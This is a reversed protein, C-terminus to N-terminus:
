TNAARKRKLLESLPIDDEDYFEADEDVGFDDLREGESNKWSEEGRQIDENEDLGESDNGDTQDASAREHFPRRRQLGASGVQWRKFDEQQRRKFAEIGEEQDLSLERHTFAENAPFQRKVRPIRDPDPPPWTVSLDEFGNIEFDLGSANSPSAAFPWFWALVNGTGMGQRLNPWIGIDYPFEQRKIKIRRGDPGQLWGGLYRARRLLTEHRDIEWGEITTINEGFKIGFRILMIAMIFLTLSNAALLVFLHVLQIASPGLYSPLSRNNWVVAARIYLFYALYSMAATAYFLVRFFHPFTTHSVCNALWPCHHDMKPICRKCTKCHHARPPKAAECKSCWRRAGQVVEETGPSKREEGYVKVPQPVWDKPVFGPDTTCARAFSVYLCILLLNFIAVQNQELPHPELSLFLYQSSYGLFTILAVVAPVALQSMEFSAM